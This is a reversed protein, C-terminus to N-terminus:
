MLGVYADHDSIGNILPYTVITAPPVLAYNRRLWIYDVKWNAETLRNSTVATGTTPCTHNDDAERYGGFVYMAVMSNMYTANCSHINFDGAMVDTDTAHHHSDIWSAMEQYQYNATAQDTSMHTGCAYFNVFIVFNTCTFGRQPYADNSSNQHSFLIESTAGLNGITGKYFTYEGFACNGLITDCAHTDTPDHCNNNKFKMTQVGGNHWGHALLNSTLAAGQRACVEEFVAFILGPRAPILTGTTYTVAPTNYSSHGPGEGEINFTLWTGTAASARGMPGLVSLTVALAVLVKLSRHTMTVESGGKM